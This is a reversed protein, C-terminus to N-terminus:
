IIPAYRYAKILTFSIALKAPTQLKSFSALLMQAGWGELRELFPLPSARYYEGIIGSNKLIKKVIDRQFGMADLTVYRQLWGQRLTAFLHINQWTDCGCISACVVIFLVDPLM